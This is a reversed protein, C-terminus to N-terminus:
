LVDGVLLRLRFRKRGARALAQLVHALELDHGVRQASDAAEAARGTVRCVCRADAGRQRRRNGLGASPREGNPRNERRGAGQDRAQVRGRQRGSQYDVTAGAATSSVFINNHSNTLIDGQDFALYKGAVIKGPIRYYVDPDHTPLSVYAEGLPSLKGSDPTFLGIKGGDAREKFWAYGQVYPTRELFDTAQILYEREADNDAANWEAYETVWVPCKFTDHMTQVAWKMEGISGYTHLGLAAPPPTSNLYFYFAKLFPVMFTYTLVKNEIPDMAQISGDAPSGLSMNPAVTPLNYRDAVDKIKGYLTATAQPTIFSQGKLNPENIGLVARPKPNASRLYNELGNVSDESDGWAM